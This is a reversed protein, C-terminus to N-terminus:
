RASWPLVKFALSLAAVSRVSGSVSTDAIETPRLPLAPGPRATKPAPTRGSSARRSPTGSPLGQQLYLHSFVEAHGTDTSISLRASVPGLIDVPETLPPGTFTLGDERAELSSNDRPGATRSLLPGGLSPTPDGPDYRFSAM